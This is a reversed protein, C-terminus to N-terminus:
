IAPSQPSNLPFQLLTFLMKAWDRQILFIFFDDNDGQAYRLAQTYTKTPINKFIVVKGVM